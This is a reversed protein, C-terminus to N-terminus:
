DDPSVEEGGAISRMARITEPPIDSPLYSVHGDVFAVNAGGPHGSSIGQGVEPNVNPAMQDAHLDRPEAWHVGSNLVEVVAITNSTGDAVDAFCRSTNGPWMTGSGVVALYNTTAAAGKTRWSEDSPCGFEDIPTQSLTLNNLSDWPEDLCFQDYLPKQEIYPLILVRWGYLPRGAADTVYAPPFCGHVDHYNHLALGIQKLNNRCQSRRSPEPSPSVLPAILAGVIIGSGVAACFWHLSGHLIAMCFSVMAAVPPFLAWLFLLDFMKTGVCALAFAIWFPVALLYRRQFRSVGNAPDPVCVLYALCALFIFLAVGAGGLWTISGCLLALWVPVALLHKLSFQFPPRAPPAVELSQDESSDM